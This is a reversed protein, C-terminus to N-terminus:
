SAPDLGPLWSRNGNPRGAEVVGLDDFIRAAEQADDDHDGTIGVRAALALALEFRLGGERCTRIASDLHQQASHLDSRVASVIGLLRQARAEIVAGRAVKPAEEMARRALGESVDPSGDVLRAEALRLLSELAYLLMSGSRFESECRELMEIAQGTDGLRSLATGHLLEAYLLAAEYGAAGLVRKVEALAEGARDLHGQDVLIEAANMAALAAGTVNGMAQANSRGQEYLDVADTWRGAFFAAMGLNIALISRAEYADAPADPGLGVEVYAEADSWDTLAGVIAGYAQVTLHRDGAAEAHAQALEGERRADVLQGQDMRLGALSLHIEALRRHVWPEPEVGALRREAQRLLRIAATLHKQKQRVRARRRLCNVALDMDETLRGVRRYAAEAGALDGSFEKSRGLQEHLTARAEADVDHCHRGARLAREYQEIAEMHAYAGAAETAARVAYRYADPHRGAAAFHLSLLSAIQTPDDLESELLRGTREHLRRRERFPLGEYAVDRYMAHRFRFTSDSDHEILEDLGETMTLDDDGVASVRLLDFERGFVAAM